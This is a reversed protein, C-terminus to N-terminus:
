SGVDFASSDNTGIDEEANLNQTWIQGYFFSSPAISVQLPDTIRCARGVFVSKRDHIPEAEIIEVGEPIRAEMEQMERTHEHRPKANGETGENVSEVEREDERVMGGVKVANMKERLWDM